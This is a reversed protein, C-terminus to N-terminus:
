VPSNQFANSLKVYKLERNEALNSIGSLFRFYRTFFLNGYIIHCLFLAEPQQCSPETTSFEYLEGPPIFGPYWCGSSSAWLWKYSQPDFVRKQRESTGVYMHCMFIHIVQVHVYIQVCAHVCVFILFYIKLLLYFYVILFSWNRM